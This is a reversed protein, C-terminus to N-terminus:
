GIVCNAFTLHIASMLRFKPGSVNFTRNKTVVESFGGM